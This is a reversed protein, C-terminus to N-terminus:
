AYRRKEMSLVTLLLFFAAFSLDMVWTSLDMVGYVIPFFRSFLAIARLMAPLLGALADRAILFVLVLPIACLCGFILGNVTSGTLFGVLVAFLASVILLGILSAVASAPILSAISESLYLFGVCVFSVLAAVLLHETKSSIYMCLSLLAAGLLFFSIFGCLTAGFAIKGFMRLLLAYVGILCVPAGFLTVLALYKGLVIRGMPLPLALLLQDTRSRREEAFTRMAILPCLVAPLLSLLNLSYNINGMGFLMNNGAMFIGAFLLLIAAFLWGFVGHLHSMLERKYIAIM